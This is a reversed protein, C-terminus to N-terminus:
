RGPGPENAQPALSSQWRGILWVLGAGVVFLGMNLAFPLSRDMASLQGAIWGFPSTFVILTVYVIASLRAREHSELAVALLSEIMPSVLASAIGELLVSVVLLAVAHPPMFVLLGQSIFYAAFGVWLPLRFHRLSTLRPGVVFFCLAMMVSRLMVYISIESEAFGLKSTFLVGWFNGSVTSYINTVVMLSLATLVKKSRLLQGFVSRYEGLLSWLSRGRTEEMRQRGRDTEHSFLYLVVAKATMMFFAFILLGRMAPVLGFRAVLWGGLPSFLSSCVAFIMIWTWIHVLHREEADEVLLCTWATHSIRFLSNVAAAAIFFRVDQAVAWILFSLSWAFLDCIFLTLRRGFKDVIAGSLLTTLIQVVLGLSAISGIEQDTLGLALMYVSFFPFFLNYPIGFMLETLVTVRPNGKLERLTQFLSHKLLTTM